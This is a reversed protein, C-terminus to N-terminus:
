RGGKTRVSYGNVGNIGYLLMYVQQDSFHKAKGYDDAIIGYKPNNNYKRLAYTDNTHGHGSPRVRFLDKGDKM